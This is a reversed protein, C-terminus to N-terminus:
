LLYQVIPAHQDKITFIISQFLLTGGKERRQKQGSKKSNQDYWLARM